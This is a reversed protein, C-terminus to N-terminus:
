CRDLDHRMLRPGGCLVREQHKQFVMAIDRDKSVVDSVDRDGVYVAGSTTEELGALMRLSTSKRWGSPGVLVMFGGNEIERDLSDVAPTTAGPFTPSANEFRM